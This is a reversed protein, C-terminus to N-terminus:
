QFTKFPTLTAYDKGIIVTADLYEDLDIDQLVREEPIGVAAALKKASELDGVRDYVMSLEEDFSTHDGVEVVDFGNKRLYQTLDGALGSVGCGNRVSVQIVNGVLQGTNNERYPDVRHTFSRSVVVIVVVIALVGFLAVKPNPGEQEASM